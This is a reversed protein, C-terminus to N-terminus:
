IGIAPAMVLLVRAGSPFVPQPPSTNSFVHTAPLEDEDRRLPLLRAHLQPAVRHFNVSSLRGLERVVERLAPHELNVLLEGLSKLASVRRDLYHANSKSIPRRTLFFLYSSLFALPLRLRPPVTSLVEGVSPQM